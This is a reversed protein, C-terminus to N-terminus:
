VHCAVTFVSIKEGFIVYLVDCLWALNRRWFCYMAESVFDGVEEIAVLM